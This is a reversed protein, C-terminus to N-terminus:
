KSILPFGVLAFVIIGAGLVMTVVGVMKASQGELRTTSSLQIDGKKIAERGTLAVLLGVIVVVIQLM